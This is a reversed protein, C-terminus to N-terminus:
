VWEEEEDQKGMVSIGAMLRNIQICGNPEEKYRM